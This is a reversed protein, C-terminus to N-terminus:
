SKNSMGSEDELSRVSIEQAMKMGGVKDMISRKVCVSFQVKKDEFSKKPAGNPNPIRKKGQM